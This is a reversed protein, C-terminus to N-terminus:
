PHVELVALRQKGFFAHHRLATDVDVSREAARQDALETKMEADGAVHAVLFAWVVDYIDREVPLATVGARDPIARRFVDYLHHLVGVVLILDIEDREDVFVEHRHIHRGATGPQLLNAPEPVFVTQHRFLPRVSAPGAHVPAARAMRRQAIRFNELDHSLC